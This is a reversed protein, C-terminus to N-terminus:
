LGNKNEKLQNYADEWAWDFSVASVGLAEGDIGDQICLLAGHKQKVANPYAKKVEEENNTNEM